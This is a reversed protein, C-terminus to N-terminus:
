KSFNKKSFRILRSNLRKKADINRYIKSVFLLNGDETYRMKYCEKEKPIFPFVSLLIDVMEENPFECRAFQGIVEDVIVNFERNASEESRSEM